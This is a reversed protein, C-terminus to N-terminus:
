NSVVLNEKVKDSIWSYNNDKLNKKFTNYATLGSDLLVMKRNYMQVSKTVRKEDFNKYFIHTVTEMARHFNGTTTKRTTIKNLRM